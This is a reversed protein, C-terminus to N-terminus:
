GLMYNMLNPLHNPVYIIDGVAVHAETPKNNFRAIIWWASVDGYFAYALKHFTDDFKWKYATIQMKSLDKENPNKFNPSMYQRIFKVNRKKFVEKYEELDNNVIARDRYRNYM